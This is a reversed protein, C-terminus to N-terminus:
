DFTILGMYKAVFILVAFIIVVAVTILINTKM